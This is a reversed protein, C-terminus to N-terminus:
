LPVEELWAWDPLSRALQFMDPLQLDWARLAHIGAERLLKCAQAQLWASAHRRRFGHETCPRRAADRRAQVAQMKTLLLHAQAKRLSLSYRAQAAPLLMAKSRTLALCTQDTRWPGGRGQSM